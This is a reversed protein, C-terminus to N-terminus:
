EEFLVFKTFNYFPKISNLYKGKSEAKMFSEYVSVPVGFYLYYGSSFKVSLVNNERCYGVAELNSSEVKEFLIM